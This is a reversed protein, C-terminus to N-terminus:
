VTPGDSTLSVDLGTAKAGAALWGETLPDLQKLQSCHLVFSKRNAGRFFELCDDRILDGRECWGLFEVSRAQYDVRMLVYIEIPEKTTFKGDIFYAPVLLHPDKHHTSKVEVLQGNGAVFDPTGSRVRIEEDRPMGFLLSFGIEGLLGVLDTVESSQGGIQRDVVGAERSVQHRMRAEVEAAEVTKGDLRIRLGM